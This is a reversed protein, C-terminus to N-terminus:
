SPFSIDPPPSFNLAYNAHPYHDDKIRIIKETTLFLATHHIEIQHILIGVEKASSDNCSTEGDREEEFGSSSILKVINEVLEQNTFKLMSVEALFFSMNLFIVGTILTFVKALFHQRFSNM